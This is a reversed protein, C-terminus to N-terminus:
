SAPAVVRAHACRHIGAAGRRARNGARLTRQMFCAPGHRQDNLLESASRDRARLPDRTNGRSDPVGAGPAVIDDHDYGRHTALRVAEEIQGAANLLTGVRPLEVNQKRGALLHGNRQEGHRQLRAAAGGARVGPRLNANKGVAGVVLRADDPYVFPPHAPVEIRARHHDDGSELSLVAVAVDGGETAAAGIGRRDREGSRESRRLALDM